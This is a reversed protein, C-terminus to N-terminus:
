LTGLKTAGHNYKYLRFLEYNWFILFLVYETTNKYDSKM